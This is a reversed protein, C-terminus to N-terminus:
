HTGKENKDTKKNKKKRKKKKRRAKKEEKPSMFQVKKFEVLEKPTLISQLNIHLEEELKIYADQKESFGVGYDVRLNEKKNHYEFLNSKVIEAKFADLKLNEIYVPMQQEVLSVANNTREAYASPRASPNPIYGRSGRLQGEANQAFTTQHFLTVSLIILIHKFYNMM